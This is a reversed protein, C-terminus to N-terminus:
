EEPYEIDVLITLAGYEVLFSREGEIELYGGDLESLIEQEPIDPFPGLRVKVEMNPDRDELHFMLEKIKM